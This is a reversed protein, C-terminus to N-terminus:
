PESNFLSLLAEKSTKQPIWHLEKKIKNNSALFPWRVFDLYSAPADGSGIFWLIRSGLRALWAPLVIKRGPLLQSIENMTISDDPVVNYIGAKKNTISLLIANIVDDIHCFQIPIEGAHRIVPLIKRRLINSVYNTSNIALFTCPRLITLIPQKHAKMFPHCVLSETLKKHFAYHFDKKAQLPDDETLLIPNAKFAGYALTSSIYIIQKVNTLLGIQLIKNTGEIDVLYAQKVESKKVPSVTFALHIIITPNFLQIHDILDPHLIDIQKFVSNNALTVKLPKKDICLLNIATSKQLQKILNTGLFGSSGTVVIRERTLKNKISEM